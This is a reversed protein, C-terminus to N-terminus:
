VGKAMMYLSGYKKKAERVVTDLKYVYCMQRGFLGCSTKTRPIKDAEPKSFGFYSMVRRMCASCVLKDRQSTHTADATAHTKHTIAFLVAYGKHSPILNRSRRAHVGCGRACLM